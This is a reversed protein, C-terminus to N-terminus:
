PHFRNRLEDNERDPDRERISIELDLVARGFAQRKQIATHRLVAACLIFVASATANSDWLSGAIVLCILQFSMFWVMRLPRTIFVIFWHLAQGAKDSAVERKRAQDYSEGVYRWKLLPRQDDPM